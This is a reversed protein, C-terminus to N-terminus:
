KIIANNLLYTHLNKLSDNYKGIYTGYQSVGLLGILSNDIIQSMNQIALGTKATSNVIDLQIKVNGSPTPVKAMSEAYKQYTKGIDVLDSLQSKDGTSLINAMISLENGMASKNFPDIAKQM